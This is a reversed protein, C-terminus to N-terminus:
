SRETVRAELCELLFALRSRHMGRHTMNRGAEFAGQRLEARVSPTEAFRAVAQALGEADGPEFLLGNTGERVHAETGSTASSIVPVGQAFADFIIRPQEQKRNALVVADHDRLLRFFAEGYEVSEVFQVETPGRYEAAFRRCESELAGQGLMTLTVAAGRRKMADLRRVAEMVTDAGKDRVLRAPFVLRVRDAGMEALARAHAESSVLQAEDVWVAPNVFSREPGVGFLRRYGDHTFIRADAAQLSRGLVRRYIADASWERLTPRRDRPKEWPSSEIVIVWQFPRVHRLPWLYFSLPFAWGAGGSHAIDTEGLVRWVSAFNPVTNRLVSGWGHDRRLGHVRDAPLGEVRVLEPHADPLPELPCCLRFDPIYELHLSLDKAWLKDTYIGGAHDQFAPIRTFLTYRGALGQEPSGNLEPPPTGAM